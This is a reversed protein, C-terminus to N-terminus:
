TTLSVNHNRFLDTFAFIIRVIMVKGGRGMSAFEQPRCTM